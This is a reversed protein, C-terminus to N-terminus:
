RAKLGTVELGQFSTNRVPIYVRVAAGCGVGDSIADVKGSVMSISHNKSNEAFIEAYEAGTSVAAELAKACSERSIM